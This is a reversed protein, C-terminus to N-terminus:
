MPSCLNKRLIGLSGRSLTCVYCGNPELQMRNPQGNTVRTNGPLIHGHDISWIPLGGSLGNKPPSEDAHQKKTEEKPLQGYKVVWLKDWAQGLTLYNTLFSLIKCLLFSTSSCRPNARVVQLEFMLNVTYFSGQM